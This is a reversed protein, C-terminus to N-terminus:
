AKPGDSAPKTYSGQGYFSKELTQTAKKQVEEGGSTGGASSGSSGCAAMSLLMFAAAAVTLRRAPMTRTLRM